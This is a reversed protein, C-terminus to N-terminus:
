SLIVHRCASFDLYGLIPSPESPLSKGIM